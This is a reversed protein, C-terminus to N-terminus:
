LNWYRYSNRAAFTQSSQRTVAVMFADNLPTEHRQV